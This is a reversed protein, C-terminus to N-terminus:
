GTLEVDLQSSAAAVREADARAPQEAFIPQEALAGALEFFREVGAPAYMTAFRTFYAELTYGHPTGAPVSMFDGRTLEHERGGASVRMRGDLCYIAEYTSAHVHEPMSAPASGETITMSVKGATEAGRMIQFCVQGYLEHAIGRGARLFYPELKGPLTDDPGSGVEAYPRDFVYRMSFREQAAGFKDLPPPSPDVKPFAPGAYPTGCFDFFRDWGAPVIPGMFQSYHEHFQYAHVIGPPVSAFDGPMLIRSEDNAWVQIRGRVCYFLDHERDHYHLPIPSGAPGIATMVSMAGASEETSALARGVQGLLLHSRGEGDRLSYPEAQGPLERLPRAAVAAKQKTAMGGCQICM